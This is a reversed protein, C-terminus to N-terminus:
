CIYNRRYRLKTQEFRQALFAIPSHFFFVANTSSSSPIKVEGLNIKIVSEMDTVPKGWAAKFNWCIYKYFIWSRRNLRANKSHLFGFVLMKIYCFYKLRKTKTRLCFTQIRFPWCSLLFYGEDENEKWWISCDICCSKRRLTCCTGNRAKDLHFAFIFTAKQQEM